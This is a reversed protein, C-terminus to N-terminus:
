AICGEYDNVILSHRFKYQFFEAKTAFKDAVEFHGHNLLTKVVPWCHLLQKNM